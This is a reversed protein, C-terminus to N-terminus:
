KRFTLVTETRMRKSLELGTVPLYRQSAPLDREVQGVLEMGYITAAKALGAANDVYCGKLCSNGVVFTASGGKRLVREVQRAMGLLDGIYREVMGTSRPPLVRSGLMAHKVDGFHESSHDPSREAGISHSRIHRLEEFTYGLWVLAMRHGRMYDIANLYPPSTVVADVSNAKLSLQRVDGLGVCAASSVPEGELRAALQTVSREFGSFVDYSSTKSVRHPRSHSTDRALSAGQEKTVIIRSLALRLVDVASANTENPLSTKHRHLVYALRTLAHRQAPAFWFDMFAKTEGSGKLWPLKHTRLDLCRAETLLEAALGRVESADVPSTWVRSMLVALPDMDFGIAKHGLALAHRLVTGSGAMPDLVVRGPKLSQLSEFALEPAM